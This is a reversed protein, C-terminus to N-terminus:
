TLLKLGSILPVKSIIYISIKVFIDIKWAWGCGFINLIVLNVADVM